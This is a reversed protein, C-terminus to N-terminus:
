IKDYHEELSLAMMLCKLTTMARLYSKAVLEKTDTDKDKKKLDSAAKLAKLM